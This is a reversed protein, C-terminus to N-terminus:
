DEGWWQKLRQGIEKETGELVVKNLKTMASQASGPLATSKAGSALTGFRHKSIGAVTAAATLAASGVEVSVGSM